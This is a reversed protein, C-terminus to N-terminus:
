DKYRVINRLLETTVLYFRNKHQGRPCIYVSALPAISSDKDPCEHSFTQFHVSLTHWKMLLAINTIKMSKGKINMQMYNNIWINEDLYGKRVRVSWFYKLILTLSFQWIVTSRCTQHMVVLTLGFLVIDIVSLTYNERRFPIVHINPHSHVVRFCCQMNSTTKMIYVVGMWTNWRM